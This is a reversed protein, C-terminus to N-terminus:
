RRVGGHTELAVVALDRDLRGATRPDAPDPNRHCGHVSDCQRYQRALFAGGPRDPRRCRWVTRVRRCRVDVPRTHRTVRQRCAAHVGLGYRVCQGGWLHLAGDCQGRRCWGHRRGGRGASGPRRIVLRRATRSAASTGAAACVGAATRVIHGDATYAGPRLDAYRRGAARDLGAMRRLRPGACVVWAHRFLHHPGAPRYDRFLSRGAPHVGAWVPFIHLGAPREPVCEHQLVGAKM